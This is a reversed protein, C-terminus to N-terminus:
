RRSAGRARSEGGAGRERNRRPHEPRAAEGLVGDIQAAEARHDVQDGGARRERGEPEALDRGAMHGRDLFQQLAAQEM